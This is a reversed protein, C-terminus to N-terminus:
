GSFTTREAIQELRTAATARGPTAAIVEALRRAAAVYSPNALVEEVTEAIDLSTALEGDLARGAGLAAVQAALGPQDAAPNPLCVLPVGHALAASVTGHGAHTIMVSAQAMIEGHPVQPVLVANEPVALGTVDAMGTTILVRYSRGALAELTRQIRSRQDWARGTSFSVLVLPRPDDAPWPAHWGSAPLREFVPGVYAFSPPVQAALPDLEPITTCLTPFRTWAEWLSSVADLGAAARVANVPGIMMQELPGGPPVLLGAASHVLVAAPQGAVEAAALAGFMLCDVVALDYHEHALIHPLDRLHQPCAWVANVLMSMVRDPPETRYAAQAHRLVSFRFGLKTFRDHQSAYGAFAVQYGREQLEQATGIAPPQNGGGEWTIFLFRAM